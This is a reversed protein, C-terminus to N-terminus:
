NKKIVNKLELYRQFEINRLAENKYVGENIFELIANSLNEGFVENVGKNRELYEKTL